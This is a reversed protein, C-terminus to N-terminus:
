RSRRAAACGLVLLGGWIAYTAPEPIVTVITKTGDFVQSFNEAGVNGDAKILGSAIYGNFVSGAGTQDGGLWLQSDGNLNLLATGVMTIRSGSGALMKLTGDTVTVTSNEAMVFTGATEFIGGNDISLVGSYTADGVTTNGGATVTAGDVFLSGNGGAKAIEFVGSTTLNATVNLTAISAGNGYRGLKVVAVSVPSASLDITSNATKSSISVTDTVLLTPMSGLKWIADEHFSHSSDWFNATLNEIDYNVAFAGQVAALAVFSTLLFTKKM